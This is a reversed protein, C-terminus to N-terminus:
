AVSAPAPLRPLLPDRCCFAKDTWLFNTATWKQGKILKTSKHNSMKDEQGDRTCSYWVLLNGKVPKITLPPHLKVFETDGGEEPGELVLLASLILTSAGTDFWDTHDPHYEGLSDNYHRIRFTQTASTLGPADTLNLFSVTRQHLDEMIPDQSIPLEFSHGTEDHKSKGEWAHIHTFITDIEAQTAFNNYKYVRPWSSLVEVALRLSCPYFPSPFVRPM